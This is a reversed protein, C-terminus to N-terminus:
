VRKQQEMYQQVVAFPAGGVTAVFSRNTWLTPLRDQAVEHLIEKLRTDVGDRLVPRRYKPCWVVRDKCSYVM